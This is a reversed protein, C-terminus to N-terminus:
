EDLVVYTDLSADNAVTTLRAELVDLGLEAFVATCRAFNAPSYHQYLFVGTGGRKPERAVAILSDAGDMALPALLVSHWVVELPTHRLFYEDTFRGWVADIDADDLGEDRLRQRAAEQTQEILEERDIPNELGRRLARRALLHLERFLSAKWSNWLNPNTGRVDAVTLVYLYDLHTEDGVVSAFEHLVEPDSIDKKQATVSLLLHHRVLWAVLRADYRPLGLELCFAEADVAGLESHDGGRGKAIDHFLAGLYAIEPKPLAQMVESVDPFEDDFRSLALRRLNRLVFLTHEDVTYTHFLDFQMRGIVRGFAPIYRGLVGLANMRRLERSVGEPARLLQVFMRHHRPNQRFEEDILHLHTRVLRITGASLGRLHYHQQLVLFLELLASPEQAFVGSHRVRVYDHHIEFRENIPTPPQDSGEDVIAERLMQLLMDNLRSLEKVTRYYRQMFQEVALTYSADEYGFMQALRTQMDFLLRDERRGSALHLAFRIRWLFRQGNLLAEYEAVSLFGQDHLQDLTSTNFHRQTVWAVTQIDRLGGPSSKVNPELNYATDHSRAHREAQETVKAEFFAPSPWMRAPSIAEQMRAFEQDAGALWRSEMLATLVTVDNRAERECDGVTRISHGVELGVDWLATIMRSIPERQQAASNGSALLVMIDIDSCPHLEGRGYGGVAILAAPTDDDAFVNRWIRILLADVLAARGRVLGEISDGSDFRRRLEQHGFALAERYLPLAEDDSAQAAADLTDLPLWGPPSAADGGALDAHARYLPPM